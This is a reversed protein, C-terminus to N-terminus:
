WEDKLDEAQNGSNSETEPTSNEPIDSTEPEDPEYGWEEYPRGHCEIVQKLYYMLLTRFRSAGYPRQQVQVAKKHKRLAATRKTIPDSLSAGVADIGLPFKPYYM